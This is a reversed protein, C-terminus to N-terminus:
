PAGYCELPKVLQSLVESLHTHVGFVLIKFKILYFKHFTRFQDKKREKKYGFTPYKYFVSGTINPIQQIVM